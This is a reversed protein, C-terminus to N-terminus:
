SAPENSGGDESEGILNSAYRKQGPSPFPNVAPIRLWHQNQQLTKHFGATHLRLADRADRVARVIRVM